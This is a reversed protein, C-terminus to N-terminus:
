NRLPKGTGIMHAVRAISAKSRALTLFAGRELALVDAEGLSQTMDTGGGSLVEALHGGVVADHPTAKGLKRFGELALSLAAKATAGPLSFRPEAPPAYSPALALVKAKADALLRDRNMTIGDAERLFMLDKAEAASKAVNAMAITEFTKIVPPMPGFPPKKVAIRRLLMEKCGGWAPVLGVGTEVLGVYTEAHAQVASSHLLVECGGGLAMGSPAAVVPFPAYKLRTFVKQGHRVLTGVAFWARLRAAILLLGINAGVSFNSGENHIILGNYRGPILRIAKDIMMLTLPNLSNMKSHFELCVVGDGVDWLSASRNRAIPASRRKIDSLLVVGEPRVVDRYDGTVTLYQLRGAETRYFSRGNAVQLLAPVPLGDARLHEAFWDVGLRDIMEFPGYKWNYGLRMAADVSVIDDAIEPVLEAAYALLRSMVWWGYRGGKDPHEFLARLGGSKAKAVSELNPKRSARYAGTALDIAEKVKETKDPNLRYFGGKGKRGTLGKAIMDKILTPERNIAHFADDKALTASLSALVHPMLDIGVMDLLGFVGTNPAGIPAGMVADAEEVTLGEDMARAVACQMWYIGLRNAIFGPTDKCRIPTKGLRLDAFQEIAAIAAARTKPGTVIELLRLYRPPNFFHTILFDRAFSAPLGQVLTALPITSTNSSVISGPKRAREIKKYLARKADPREVIAEVIWDCDAIEAMDDDICHPAILAANKRHMLPAPDTTLLRAIAATAIARRDRGDGPAIDFLRVPVGANAIQAAIGAGMVGAGFVAVKRIEIM